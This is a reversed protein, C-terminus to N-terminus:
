SAGFSAVLDNLAAAGEALKHASQGNGDALTALHATDREMDSLAATVDEIGAAQAATGRAIEGVSQVTSDVAANIESLADGARGVQAVGRSVEAESRSILEAIDRSAKASREALSRVETAVVAFGKGAEGARAAEVAANISLLNTQFAFGEIVKTIKSIDATIGEIAKMSKVADGVTDVGARAREAATRVTGESDHARAALGDLAEALSRVTGGSQEIAGSLTGARQTLEGARDSLGGALSDFEAASGAFGDFVRSLRGMTANFASVIRESDGTFSGEIRAGFDGKAMRALGDTVAATMRKEATLDIAIKFAGQLRGQRDHLPAYTAAIWVSQGDKRLRRFTGQVFEGRGIRAWHERYDPSDVEDPPVFLRHHRGKIEDLGYGVARLFHENADVITGDPEFQIFAYAARIAKVIAANPNFADDTAAGDVATQDTFDRM